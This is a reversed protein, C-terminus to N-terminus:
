VARGEECQVVKKNREGFSAHWRKMNFFLCAVSASEIKLNFVNYLM